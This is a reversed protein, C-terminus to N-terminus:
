AFARGRAAPASAQLGQIDKRSQSQFASPTAFALLGENAPAEIIM